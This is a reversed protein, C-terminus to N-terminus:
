VTAGRYFDICGVMEPNIASAFGKLHEPSYLTAGDLTILNQDYNGGRVYIGVSGEGAATVGPLKQLSKLVDPEGMFMPMHTIQQPNIRIASMQPSEIGFKHKGVVKVDQLMVGQELKSKITDLAHKEKFQQAYLGTSFLLFFLLIYASRAM